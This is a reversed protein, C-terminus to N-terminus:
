EDTIRKITWLRKLVETDHYQVGIVEINHDFLQDYYGVDELAESFQVIGTVEELSLHFKIRNFFDTIIASGLNKNFIVNLPVQNYQPNILSIQNGRDNLKFLSYLECIQRAIDSDIDFKQKYAKAMEKKIHKIDM